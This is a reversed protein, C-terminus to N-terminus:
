HHARVFAAVEDAMGRERGDAPRYADLEALLDARTREPNKLRGHHPADM